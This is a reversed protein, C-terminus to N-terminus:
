TFDQKKLEIIGEKAGIKAVTAITIFLFIGGVICTSIMNM